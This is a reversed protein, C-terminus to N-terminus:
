SRQVHVVLTLLAVSGDPKRLRFKVVANKKPSTTPLITATLTMGTCSVSSVVVADQRGPVYAALDGKGCLLTNVDTVDIRDSESITLATPLSSVDVTAATAPTATAGAIALASGIALLARM